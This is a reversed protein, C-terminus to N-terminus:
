AQARSASEAVSVHSIFDSRLFTSVTLSALDVSCSSIPARAADATSSARVPGDETVRQLFPTIFWRFGRFWFHRAEARATARLLADVARM